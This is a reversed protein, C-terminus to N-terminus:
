YTKFIKFYDEIESIEININKLDEAAKKNYDLLFERILKRRKSQLKELMKQVHNTEHANKEAKQM